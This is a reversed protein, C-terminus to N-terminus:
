SVCIRQVAYTYDPLVKGQAAWQKEFVPYYEEVLQYLLTREPRHREHEVAGGEQGADRGARLQLM